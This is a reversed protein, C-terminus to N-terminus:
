ETLEQLEIYWKGGRLEPEGVVRFRAGRPLLTEAEQPHFSLGAINRGSRSQIEFVVNSDYVAGAHSTSSYAPWEVTGADAFADFYPRLFTDVDAKAITVTRWVRGPAAPLGALGADLVEVYRQMQPSLAAGRLQRNVANFYGDTYVAIAQQLGRSIPLAPDYPAHLDAARESAFADRIVTKIEADTLEIAPRLGPAAARAAVADRVAQINMLPALAPQMAAPPLHAARGAVHEGQRQLWADRGPAYGFGPDVGVPTTVTRPNGSRKGVTVEEVGDDPAADPGDKGLRQLDRQELAEVRCQCGWGNPPYHTHWWPDDAHLVLGDWAMHQPRPHQVSDSHRYRWYPAYRKIRQLQEYRGAAYSTRLNTEYIVRTRWNRGGVYSWGRAGVVSDFRQRFQALTEGDAIAKDVAERLDLLLDMRNAGAVMFGHDHGEQWVDTWAETLINGKRRFFEIQERFPLSAWIPTAM